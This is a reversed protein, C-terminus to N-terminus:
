VFGRVGNGVFVDARHGIMMDVSGAVHKQEWDLTIDRSSYIHNWVGVKRLAAKLEAIWPPKGNTMVFVNKLGKGDETAKIEVVKEVIQDINPYCIREYYKQGDEFMLDNEDVPPKIYKDVLGPIMNFATFSSRWRALHSCHGEFDGRRIHLALLGKIPAYLDGGVPSPAIGNPAIVAKNYQFARTVLPSWRFLTVGPSAFLAPM